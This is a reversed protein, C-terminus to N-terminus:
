PSSSNLRLLVLLRTWIRFALVSSEREYADDLWVSGEFVMHLLQFAVRIGDCWQLVRWWLPYQGCEVPIMHPKSVTVYLVLYDVKQDLDMTSVSVISLSEEVCGDM